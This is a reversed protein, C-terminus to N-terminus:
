NVCGSQSSRLTTIAMQLNRAFCQFVEPPQGRLTTPEFGVMIAAVFADDLQPLPLKGSLFRRVMRNIVGIYPDDKDIM